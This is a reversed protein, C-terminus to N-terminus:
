SEIKVYRQHFPHQVEEIAAEINLIPVLSREIKAMSSVLHHINVPLTSDLPQFDLPDLAVIEKLTSVVCGIKGDAKGAVANSSNGNIILLTLKDQSRSNKAAPALDFLTSLDLIWLLKGRQNVVGLITPLVGPVPCIEGRKIAIVEAARDVPLVLPFSSQLQVHFYDKM